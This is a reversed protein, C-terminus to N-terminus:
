NLVDIFDVSFTGGIVLFEDYDCITSDTTVRLYKLAESTILFKNAINVNIIKPIRMGTILIIETKDTAVQM